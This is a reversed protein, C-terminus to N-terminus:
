DSIEQEIQWLLCGIYQTHVKVSWGVLFPIAFTFLSDMGQLKLMPLILISLITTELYDTCCHRGHVLFSLLSYSSIRCIEISNSSIDTVFQKHAFVFVVQSFAL